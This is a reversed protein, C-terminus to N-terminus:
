RVGCSGHETFTLVLDLLDRLRSYYTSNEDKLAAGETCQKNHKTLFPQVLHVRVALDFVANKLLYEWQSKRNEPSSKAKSDSLTKKVREDLLKRSPSSPLSKLLLALSPQLSTM